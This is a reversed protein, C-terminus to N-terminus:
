IDFEGHMQTCLAQTKSTLAKISYIPVDTVNVFQTGHGDKIRMQFTFVENKDYERYGPVGFNSADDVRTYFLPEYEPSYGYKDNTFDDTTHEEDEKNLLGSYVPDGLHLQMETLQVGESDYADIPVEVM